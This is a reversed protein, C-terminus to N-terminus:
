KLVVIDNNDELLIMMEGRKLPYPMVYKPMFRKNHRLTGVVHTKINFFKLALEYSTYFHDFFLTRGENLLKKTLETCVDEATGVQRIGSAYIELM